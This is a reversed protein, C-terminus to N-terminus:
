AIWLQTCGQYVCIKTAKSAYENRHIGIIGRDKWTEKLYKGIQKGNQTFFIYPFENTMNTEPYVLGCGFTYFNKWFLTQPLKFEENKENSILNNKAIYKIRSNTNCNKLGIVMWKGNNNVFEGEFICKIEFYFLSYNSSKQSSNFSNEASVVVRKDYSGDLVDKKVCNIYKIDEDNILKVFGNGKICNNSLDDTNESCKNFCCNNVIIWKNKIKVFNVYKCNLNNLKNTLDNANANQTSANSSSQILEDDSDDSSDGAEEVFLQKIDTLVAPARCRPCDQSGETIWRTVCEKHFTHNCNKLTYVNDPRLRFQCVTCRGFKYYVM